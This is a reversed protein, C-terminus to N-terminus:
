GLFILFILVGWLEILVAGFDGMKGGFHGGSFHGDLWIFKIVLGAAVLGARRRFGEGAAIGAHADLADGCFYCFFFFFFMWLEILVAGFDGIKGGFHGGSFERDLWIFIYVYGAFALGARRRFGKGAAVGANANREM